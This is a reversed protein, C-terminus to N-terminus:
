NPLQPSPFCTVYNPPNWIGLTLVYGEAVCMLLTIFTNKNKM